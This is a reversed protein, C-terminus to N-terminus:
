LHIRDIHHPNTKMFTNEDPEFSSGMGLDEANEKILDSWKQLIQSREVGTTKDRWNELAGDAIDIARKTELARMSEVTALLATGNTMEEKTAAPDYVKLPSDKSLPGTFSLLSADSLRELTHQSTSLANTVSFHSVTAVAGVLTKLHMMESVKKSTILRCVLLMKMLESTKLTNTMTDQHIYYKTVDGTNFSKGNHGNATTGHELQSLQSRLSSVLVQYCTM